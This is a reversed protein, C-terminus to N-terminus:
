LEGSLTHLFDILQQQQGADIALSSPLEHSSRSKDPPRVYHRVVEALTKFRGDHMYPATAKLNRLGPTLFAGRMLSPVETKLSQAVPTCDGGIQFRESANMCSWPSVELASAAAARGLDESPRGLDGTGINHFRGDRFLPGNHCSACGAAGSIFVRLGAVEDGALWSTEPPEDPSAAVAAVYRDFRTPPSLLTREFTAIARGLHVFALDVGHASTSAGFSARYLEELRADSRVFDVVAARNGAMEDAAEIAMLAQAWLSDARGDWLLWRSFAVDLLSPTNRRLPKLGRATPLGDAFSREPIHCTSCAVEGSGSLAPEFFLRRGLEVAPAPAEPLDPLASISFSALLARQAPSWPESLADVSTLLVVAVAAELWWRNM